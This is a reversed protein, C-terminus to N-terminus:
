GGRVDVYSTVERRLTHEVHKVHHSLVRERGASTIRVARICAHQCVGKRESVTERGEWLQSAHMCGEAEGRCVGPQPPLRSACAATCCAGKCVEAAQAHPYFAFLPPVHGACAWPLSRWKWRRAHSTRSPQVSALVRSHRRTSMSHGNGRCQQVGKPHVSM